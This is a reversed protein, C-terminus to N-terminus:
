PKLNPHERLIQRMVPMALGALDEPTFLDVPTNQRTQLLELVADGYTDLSEGHILLIQKARELGTRLGRSALLDVMEDPVEDNLQYQRRASKSHPITRLLEGWHGRSIVSITQAVPQEAFLVGIQSLKALTEETDTYVGVYESRYKEGVVDVNLRQPHGLLRRTNVVINSYDYPDTRYSGAYVSFPESEEAPRYSAREHM